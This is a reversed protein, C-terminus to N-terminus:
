LAWEGVFSLPVIEGVAASMQGKRVHLALGPCERRVQTTYRSDSVLMIRGQGVVLVSDDGSFGSLYRVDEPAAVILADLKEGKLLQRCRRVRGAVFRKQRVKVM